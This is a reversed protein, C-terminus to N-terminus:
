LSSDQTCISGRCLKFASSNDRWAIPHCCFPTIPHAENCLESFAFKPAGLCAAGVVKTERHRQVKCCEVGEVVFIAATVSICSLVPGKLVRLAGREQSAEKVLMPLLLMKIQHAQELDQKLWTDYRQRSCPERCLRRAASGCSSYATGTFRCGQLGVKMQATDICSGAGRGFLAAVKSVARM